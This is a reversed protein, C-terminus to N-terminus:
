NGSESDAPKDEGGFILIADDLVGDEDDIDRRIRRRLILRSRVPKPHHRQM